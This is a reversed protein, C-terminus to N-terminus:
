RKATRRQRPARPTSEGAASDNPNVEALLAPVEGAVEDLKQSLVDIRRSLTKVDERSMLHLRKWVKRGEYAAQDQALQGLDKATKEAKGVLAEVQERRRAAVPRGKEVLSGFLKRGGETVESIRTAETVEALAGLGALWVNRGAAAIGRGAEALTKNGRVEELLSM